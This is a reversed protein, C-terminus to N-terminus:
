LLLEVHLKGIGKRTLYHLYRIYKNIARLFNLRSHFLSQNAHEFIVFFFFICGDGALWLAPHYGISIRSFFAAVVVAKTANEDTQFCRNCPFSSCWQTLFLSDQAQNEKLRVRGHHWVLVLDIDILNLNVYIYEYFHTYIYIYQLKWNYKRM